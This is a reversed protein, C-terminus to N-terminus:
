IEICRCTSYRVCQTSNISKNICSWPSCLFLLAIVPSIIIRDDMKITKIELINVCWVFLKLNV